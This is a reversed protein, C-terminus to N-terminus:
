AVKKPPVVALGAPVGFFDRSFSHVIKGTTKSLSTITIKSGERAGSLITLYPSRLCSGNQRAADQSFAIGRASRQLDASGVTTM